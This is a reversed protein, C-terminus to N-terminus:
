QNIIARSQRFYYFSEGNECKDEFTDQFSIELNETLYVYEEKCNIYGWDKIVKSFQRILFNKIDEKDVDTIPNSYNPNMLLMVHERDYHAKLREYVPANRDEYFNWMFKMFYMMLDYFDNNNITVKIIM